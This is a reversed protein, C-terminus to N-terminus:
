ETGAKPENLILGANISALTELVLSSAHSGGPTLTKLCILTKRASRLAEALREAGAEAAYAQAFLEKNHKKIVDYNAQLRENERALRDITAAALRLAVATVPSGGDFHVDAIKGLEAMQAAVEGAEIPKTLRELETLVTKVDEVRFEFSEGGMVSVPSNFAAQLRAIADKIQDTMAFHAM